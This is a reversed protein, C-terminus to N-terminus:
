NVTVQTPSPLILSPTGAKSKASWISILVWLLLLSPPSSWNLHPHNHILHSYPFWTPVPSPPESSFVCIQSGDAHSYQRFGPHSVRDGLTCTLSKLRAGLVSGQPAHATLPCICWSSGCLNLCHQVLTMLLFMLIHIM